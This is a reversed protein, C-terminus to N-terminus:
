KAVYVGLVIGAVVGVGIGVAGAIAWAPFPGPKASEKNARATEKMLDAALKENQEKLKAAAAEEHGLADKYKKAAEKLETELKNRIPEAAIFTALQKDIEFLKAAQEFEYCALKGCMKWKPVYKLEDARCLSAVLM